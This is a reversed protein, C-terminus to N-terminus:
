LNLGPSMHMDGPHREPVTFVSPKGGLTGYNENLQGHEDGNSEGITAEIEKGTGLFGLASEM